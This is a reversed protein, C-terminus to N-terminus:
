KNRVRLKRYARVGILCGLIAWKHQIMFRVYKFKMCSNSFAVFGDVGDYLFPHRFFLKELSKFFSQASSINADHAYLGSLLKMMRNLQYELYSKDYSTDTMVAEYTSVMSWFIHELKECSKVWIAMDMTQGSRGVLYRYLCIPYYYIKKSKAPPLYFWETDTYPIGETQHYGIGRLLETKYCVAHMAMDCRYDVLEKACISKETPIPYSVVGFEVGEDNVKAFNTIVMDVDDPLLELRLMLKKFSVTDFTDDADLIKVYAGDAIQLAANICSGYHGNPKDIVRFVGPYKASFEHAIESTRDKSGDNVVIVDIKKLLEKNDFILSGLCIPLYAEMNYSPIIISLTKNNMGIRKEKTGARGIVNM